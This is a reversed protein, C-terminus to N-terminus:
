PHVLDRRIRKMWTVRTLLIAPAAQVTANIWAISNWVGDLEAPLAADFGDHAIKALIASGITWSVVISATAIVGSATLWKLARRRQSLLEFAGRWALVAGILHIPTIVWWLTRWGHLGPSRELVADYDNHPGFFADFQQRSMPEDGFLTPLMQAVYAVMFGGAILWVIAVGTLFRGRPKKKPRPPM